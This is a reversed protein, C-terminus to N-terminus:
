IQSIFSAVRAGNTTDVVVDAAEPISEIGSDNDGRRIRMYGEEGWYSDWSNQITWYKVGKEEGWGVLLVAHDVRQWGDTGPSSPGSQYVGETYYMFDDKPEVGVVFPGNTHLEQMMEGENARGYYGGVYRHKDARAPAGAGETQLLSEEHCKKYDACQGRTSYRACTAPMLGVDQSWRSVLVGYGGQCGQNYEACHLPFSISFPVAEPGAKIKHRASLMRMTSVVYCSGCDGQDMVPELASSGDPMGTRWDFDKPLSDKLEESQRLASRLSLFSQPQQGAPQKRERRLGARTNLQDMSWGVYQDYVKAKWTTAKENLLAVHREHYARSTQQFYEQPPARPEVVPQEKRVLGTAKAKKGYFCGFKSRDENSYWGLETEECHSQNKGNELTFGSFAFFTNGGSRFEFGEDYIMSFYGHDDGVKAVNPELFSVKLETSKDLKLPPQKEAVDPRLHGCSTRTETPETLYFTWEGLVEHRLCHVPLDAHVLVGFLVALM